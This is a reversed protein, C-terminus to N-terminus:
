RCWPADALSGSQPGRAATIAGDARYKNRWTRLWQASCPDEDMPEGAKLGHRYHFRDSLLVTRCDADRILSWNLAPGGLSHVGEPDTWAYSWGGPAPDSPCDLPTLLNQLYFVANRDPPTCAHDATWGEMSQGITRLNARCRVERAADRSPGLAPLLLGILTAIVAVCVLLELLTFAPRM